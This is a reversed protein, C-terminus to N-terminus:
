GARLRTVYAAAARRVEGADWRLWLLTAYWDARFERAQVSSRSPHTDFIDGLLAHLMEHLCTNVSFFPIQNGHAHTIAILCVHYGRYWATAGSLLRGSDWQMPIQSTVILNLSARDIGNLVPERGPPRWIDGQGQSAAIRVGCGALDRVAEPWLYSWFYSRQRPGLKAAADEIIRVPVTVPSPASRFLGAAAASFFARRTM